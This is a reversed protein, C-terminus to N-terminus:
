YTWVLSKLSGDVARYAGKAHLPVHGAFVAGARRHFSLVTRWHRGVRHQVRVSGTAPAVGWVQARAGDAAVVLPFQYATFSPKKTANYFYIGSYYTTAYDDGAQDRILYWLVTSVGEKWFTYFGLDMWRAQKALPLAGDPNPPDSDYGFETVWLPKHSRPLVTKSRLGAQLVRTLRGLDPASADNANRAHTTPSSVDYPDAALIDFHVPTKCVKQLRANLCMVNELFTVPSVRGMRTGPLDGYSELGSFIVKDSPVAAKVGAYFANLMNRYLTAGTNVWHGKKRTWQPALKVSLNAEAWDQYYRVRPLTQGQADTHHGDYRTAMAQMFGRLARDNPEYGQTTALAGNNAQAWAPADTVLMVPQVHAEVLTEVITDLQSWNPYAPNSPNGLGRTGAPANPEYTGWDVEIQALRGGSAYVNQAWQQTSQSTNDPWAWVADVFGRTFTQAGAAPSIALAM